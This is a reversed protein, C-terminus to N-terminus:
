SSFNPLHEVIWSAAHAARSIMTVVVLLYTVPLVLVVIWFTRCAVFSKTLSTLPTFRNDADLIILPPRLQLAQRFPFKVSVM